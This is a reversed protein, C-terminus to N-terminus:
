FIPLLAVMASLVLMTIAVQNSNSASNKAQARKKKNNNIEDRKKAEEEEQKKREDEEEQARKKAEAEEKEKEDQERQAKQEPTEVPVPIPEAIKFADSNAGMNSAMKPAEHPTGSGDVSIFVNGQSLLSKDSPVDWIYQKDSASVTALKALPVPNGVQYLVIDVDAPANITAPFDWTIKCPGDIRCPNSKSPSTVIFNNV